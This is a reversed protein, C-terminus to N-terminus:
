RAGGAREILAHSWLAGLCLLAIGVLLLLGGLGGGLLLGVPNAGMMTGLGVGGLPLFSLIVATSQPGVLRARVAAGHRLEKELTAQVRSLLPSLAMGYHNAAEWVRVVPDLDPTTVSGEMRSSLALLQERLAADLDRYEGAVSRVAAGPDAGTRLHHVVLNLATALQRRQRERHRRGMLSRALIWGTVGVVVGACVASPPIVTVGTIGVAAVMLCWWGRWPRPRHRFGPIGLRSRPRAPILAAVGACCGVLAMM